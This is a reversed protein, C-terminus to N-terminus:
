ETEELTEKGHEIERNEQSVKQIIKEIRAVKDQSDDLVFRLIPTNRTELNKGVERQIFGRAGELMHAAKSRDAASGFVSVYVKAEKLDETPEVRLVTILGLRPDKLDRQIVQSIILKIRSSIRLVRRSPSSKGSHM